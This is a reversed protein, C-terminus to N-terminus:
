YAAPHSSSGRTLGEAAAQAFTALRKLSTIYRRQVEDNLVHSIKGQYVKERAAREHIGVQSVGILWAQTGVSVSVYADAAGRFDADALCAAMRSIGVRIDDPLERSRCLKFFPALHERTQRCVAVEQRGVATLQLVSARAAVDAEWEHLLAKFLAYMFRHDDVGRLALAAERTYRM